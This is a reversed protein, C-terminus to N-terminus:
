LFSSPPFDIEITLDDGAIVDIDDIPKTVTVAKAAPDILTADASYYGEPLEVTIIFDECPATTTTFPRGADDYVILEFDFAGFDDCALPDQSGDVSWDVTLTGRAPEPVSIGAEVSCGACSLAAYLCGTSIGFLKKLSM